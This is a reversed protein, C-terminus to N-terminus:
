VKGLPLVIAKLARIFLDGPLAIWSIVDDSADEESLIIGLLSGTLASAVILLTAIIQFRISFQPEPENAQHDSQIRNILGEAPPNDALDDAEHQIEYASIVKSKVSM